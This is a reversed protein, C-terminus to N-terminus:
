GGRLSVTVKLRGLIKQDMQKTPRICIAPSTTNGVGTSGVAERVLEGVVSFVRTCGGITLSALIGFCDINTGRMIM